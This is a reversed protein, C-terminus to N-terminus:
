KPKFALSDTGSTWTLIGNNYAMDIPRKLFALVWQQQSATLEACAAAGVAIDGVTLVTGTRTAPGGLPGCTTTVTLHLSGDVTQLKATVSGSSAWPLDKGDTKGSVSAYTSCPATPLFSACTITPTPTPAATGPGPSGGCAALAFSAILVPLAKQWWRTNAM